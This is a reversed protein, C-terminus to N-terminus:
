VFVDTQETYNEFKLLIFHHCHHVMYKPNLNFNLRYHLRISYLYIFPSHKSM